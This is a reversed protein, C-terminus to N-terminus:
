LDGWKEMALKLTGDNAILFLEAADPGWRVETARWALIRAIRRLQGADPEATVKLRARARSLFPEVLASQWQDPANSFATAAAPERPLGAAVSDAVAEIWGSDAAVYWWRPLDVADPTVVDPHIGGGGRVPRKRDTYFVAATDQADGSKGGFSYYQEAKLGHYARQIIRGSPTVIRGTTLWVVDNNPPVFFMTQMLAKGFTRRGVILARDHDQLAGSLAESASASGENVLVILPLERFDGNKTTMTKPDGSVKRGKIEYILVGKPLFFSAIQDLEGMYGGPNDRLDLILRKMGKGRLTKLASETEESSKWDFGGLRMYGTTPDLMRTLSVAKVDLYDYKIQVRLTDPELRSGREFLLRVKKGKEGMLKRGVEHSTLGGIATDNVTLLRDGAAVGAKSGPSRPLVSLVAMGGDVEDLVIGTGALTGAQYAMEREANARSLFRSHPDLSSLVGDVAAVILGAYTVSDVYSTRIQNMLSSFTQMQEYSSQARLPAALLVLGACGATLSRLARM